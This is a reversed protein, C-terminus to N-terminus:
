IARRLEEVESELIKLREHKRYDAWGGAADVVERKGWELLPIPHASAYPAPSKVPQKKGFGASPM